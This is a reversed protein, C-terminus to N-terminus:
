RWGGIIAGAVALGVVDYGVNILWLTPSRWEFGYNLALAAGIIGLGVILGIRAGGGVSTAQMREILWSLLYCLVLIAVFGIIYPLPSSGMEGNLQEMTKGIGALWPAGLVNYWLAGIAFYVIAAVFIAIHQRTRM